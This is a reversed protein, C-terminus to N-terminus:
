KTRKNLEDKYLKLEANLEKIKKVIKDASVKSLDQKNAKAKAKPKPKNPAIFSEVAKKEADKLGLVSVVRNRSAFTCPKNTKPSTFLAELKAQDATPVLQLVQAKTLNGILAMSIDM